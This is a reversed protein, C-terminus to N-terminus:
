VPASMERLVELAPEADIRTIRQILRAREITCTIQAAIVIGPHTNMADPSVMLCPRKKTIEKGIAPDLNVWWVEGQRPFTLAAVPDAKWQGDLPVGGM